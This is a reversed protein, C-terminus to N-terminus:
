CGFPDLHFSIVSRTRQVLLYTVSHMQGEIEFIFMTNTQCGVFFLNSFWISMHIYPWYILRRITNKYLLYLDIIWWGPYVDNKFTRDKTSTEIVYVWSVTSSTTRVVRKM